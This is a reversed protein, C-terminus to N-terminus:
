RGPRGEPLRGPGTSWEAVLDIIKRHLDSAIDGLLDSDVPRFHREGLLAASRDTITTRTVRAGESELRDSLESLDRRPETGASVQVVLATGTFGQTMRLDMGAFDHYDDGTIVSGRVSISGGAKLSSWAEPTDDPESSETLDIIAGARVLGRLFRVGQVAPAILVLRDASVQQGALLACSAGFNTGLLGVSTVGTLARLARTADITDEVHSQISPAFNTRESDGYGQCHFRLTPAGHSAIRRALAVDLASLNLHEPGFSHSVVWGTTAQAGTPLSLVGLTSGSRLSVEVFRESIGGVPDKITAMTQLRAIDVPM